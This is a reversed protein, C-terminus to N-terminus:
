LYICHRSLWFYVCGELAANVTKMIEVNAKPVKFETGDSALLTVKNMGKKV